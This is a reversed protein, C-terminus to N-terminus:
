GLIGRPAEILGFPFSAALAPLQRGYAPALNIQAKQAAFLLAKEAKELNKQDGHEVSLSAVLALRHEAFGQSLAQERRYAVDRLQRDQATILISKEAKRAIKAEATTVAARAKAQARRASQPFFHFTVSQVARPTVAGVLPEIFTPGVQVRPWETIVYNRHTRGDLDVNRWSHQWQLPGVERPDRGVNPGIAEGLLVGRLLEAIDGQSLLRMHFGASEMQREFEDASLAIADYDEDGDHKRGKKDKMVCTLGVIVEATAAAAGIQERMAFYDDLLYQDAAQSMHEQMWELDDSSRDPVQRHMTSICVVNSGDACTSALVQGWSNLFREQDSTDLLIFPQRLEAQWCVTVLKRGNSNRTWGGALGSRVPIPTINALGIPPPWAMKNISERRKRRPPSQGKPM